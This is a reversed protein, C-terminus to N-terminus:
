STGGNKLSPWNHRLLVGNGILWALTLGVVLAIVASSSVNFGSLEIGPPWQTQIKQGLNAILETLRSNLSLTTKSVTLWLQWEFQRAIEIIQPPTPVTFRAALQWVDIKQFPAFQGNFNSVIMPWVALMLALGIAIQGALALRGLAVYRPPPAFAPLNVMVRSAVGDPPAVEELSALQAFLTKLEALRTQCASCGQLHAIFTERESPSLEGDLYLHVTEEQITCHKSTM